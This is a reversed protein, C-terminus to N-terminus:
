PSAGLLMEAARAAIGASFRTDVGFWLNAATLVWVPVLLSPPAEQIGAHRAPLPRFWAAEIIRWVYMVAILSTLLVIVALWWWGQEIAALILYWKSIFGATLPVGILSLGGIAFASMTWPMARGIGELERIRTSGIRYAVAGLALFLAGKMLAHNFVHTIAATLGATTAFALGVVMYGIQAVSSYALLRKADNQNLATLSAAVIGILSLAILIPTLPMTEFSYDAGFVTYLVRLMVYVAVKTATAAIFASVASPAYTYANPLWLHVPFLALKLGIGAVLFAFATHATRTGSVGPLRAALDAINLTGTLSYLLGVGILFFTAGITGMILYQYAATLARRDRGLAILAYSSLSSIELFVFMNFIDGTVAIGLLGTYTLLFLCYFLALGRPGVEAAASPGAFPTVVAGIGAVILVILANLADIRLEIGWPPEWGGMTYSIPGTSLVEALLGVAIALVLWSVATALLWPLRKSPLAAALPAALLPIVILLAPLQEM